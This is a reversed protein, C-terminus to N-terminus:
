GRYARLILDKQVIVRIPWGPRVTITPQINLNKETLRQGAQSGRAGLRRLRRAPHHFAPLM